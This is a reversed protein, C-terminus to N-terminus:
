LQWGRNQTISVTMTLRQQSVFSYLQFIFEFAARPDELNFDHAVYRVRCFFNHESTSRATTVLALPVSSVILATNTLAPTALASFVSFRILRRRLDISITQYTFM